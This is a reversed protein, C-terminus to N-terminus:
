RNPETGARDVRHVSLRRETIPRPDHRPATTPAVPWLMVDHQEFWSAWADRLAVREASVFPQPGKLGHAIVPGVLARADRLSSAPRSSNMRAGADTTADAARQWRDLVQAAVPCADDDLRAGIRYDALSS